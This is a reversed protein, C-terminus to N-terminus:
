ASTGGLPELRGTGKFTAVDIEAFCRVKVYDLELDGAIRITGKQTELDAGSLDSAEALIPVGLETGGRTEAFRVHVHGRKLCDRLAEVTPEPRLRIEVPHTGTSLRNVLDSM